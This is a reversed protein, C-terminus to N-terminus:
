MQQGFCAFDVPESFLPGSLATESM